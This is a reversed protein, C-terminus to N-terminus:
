PKKYTQKTVVPDGGQPNPRSTEVALMGDATLSLTRKIEVNGMQGMQQSTAIVLSNGSWSVKSVSEISMQGFTMTNKSESGDLKFTDTVKNQMATREVKLTTADQTITVEPGWGGGMMGRGRGGGGGGGGPAPCDTCIWKGAFDPKQQAANGITWCLALAVTTLAATRRM